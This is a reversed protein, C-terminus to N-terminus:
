KTMERLKRMTESFENDKPQPRRMPMQRMAPRYVPQPRRLMSQPPMPPRRTMGPGKGSKFKSKFRFFWIKLQNRFIIALVILIILIILLIIIWISSKTPKPECCKKGADCTYLNQQEDNDCSTKCTYNYTACQTTTIPISSCTGTCCKLNDSAIVEAISCKTGSPCTTGKKETCTEEESPEKCCVNLGSCSYTSKRDDKSCDESATCSFGSKECDLSTGSLIAPSKPWGAYLLFATQKVSGWCGNNDQIKDQIGLFYNRSNATEELDLDKLALLALSSDYFKNGALEEWFKSQKQRSTVEAYYEDDESLMYLFTSPFYKINESKDFVSYLYPMYSSIEKGAKALALTAWLSGEFDCLSSTTFCYGNVKETTDGGSSASQTKDSIYFTTGVKYFTSTIFDQDCSITFEKDYCTSAIKLYYESSDKSLCTTSSFTKIKKDAGIVAKHDTGDVTITCEMEAETDSDIQLYWNLEKAIIKQDEELLWDAYENVDVRINDLALIALATAKLDCDDKGGEWCNKTKEALLASHCDSQINSNYAMALLAFSIDVSNNLSGCNSALKSELCAYASDETNNAATVVPIILLLVLSILIVLVVRKKNMFFNIM